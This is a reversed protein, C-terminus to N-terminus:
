KFPNGSSVSVHGTAKNAALNLVPYFQPVPQPLLTMWAMITAASCGNCSRQIANPKGPGFKQRLANVYSDYSNGSQITLGQTVYGIISSLKEGYLLDNPTCDVYSVEPVSASNVQFCCAKILFVYILKNMIIAKPM